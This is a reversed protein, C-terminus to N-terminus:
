TTIEEDQHIIQKVTNGRRRFFCSGANFINFFQDIQGVLESSLGM